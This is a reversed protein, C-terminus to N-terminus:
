DTAVSEDGWNPYRPPVVYRDIRDTVQNAYLPNGGGNWALLAKYTDGHARELKKAFVKCGWDLGVAQCMLDTLEGVYGFERAVEGMVQMLGWSTSRQRAEEADPLNLPVIYREYFAPEYRWANTDWGSEQEVIACVLADNLNYKKATARALAITIPNADM